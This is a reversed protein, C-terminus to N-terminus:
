ELRVTGVCSGDLRPPHPAEEHEREDREREGCRPRGRIRGDFTASDGPHVTAGSGRTDPAIVRFHTALKPFHDVHAVPSGSWRPGTSALAGHLVVLPPGEGRDTYAIEIGNAAIRKADRRNAIDTTSM